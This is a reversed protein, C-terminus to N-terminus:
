LGVSTQLRIQNTSGLFGSRDASYRSGFDFMHNRLRDTLFKSYIGFQSGAVQDLAVDSADFHM